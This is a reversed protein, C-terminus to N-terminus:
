GQEGAASDRCEAIPRAGQIGVRLKGPEDINSCRAPTAGAERTHWAARGIGEQHHVSERIGRDASAQTVLADVGCRAREHKDGDPAGLAEVEWYSLNTKCALGTM